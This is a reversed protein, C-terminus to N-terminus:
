MTRDIERIEAYQARRLAMKRQKAKAKTSGRPRGRPSNQVVINWSLPAGTRKEAIAVGAATRM